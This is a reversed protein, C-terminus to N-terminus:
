RARSTVASKGIDSIVDWAPGPFKHMQQLVDEFAGLFWKVDDDNVVLPPLLKIVDIAHGAVQTIIHHQDLL